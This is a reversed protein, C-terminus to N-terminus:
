FRSIRNCKCQYHKKHYFYELHQVQMHGMWFHRLCNGLNYSYSVIPPLCKHHLFWILFLSVTNSSNGKVEKNQASLSFSISLGLSLPLFYLLCTHSFSAPQVPLALHWNDQLQLLSGHFLQSSVSVLCPACLLLSTRSTFCMHFVSRTYCHCSCNGPSASLGFSVSLAQALDYPSVGSQHLPSQSLSSTFLTIFVSTCCMSNKQYVENLM